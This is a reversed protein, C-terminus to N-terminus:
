VNAGTFSVVGSSVSFYSSNFSAVGKSTTSATPLYSASISNGNWTGSTITGVKNIYTSGTWTSLATNEVNSLGVHSKSLTLSKSEKGDYSLVNTGTSNNINLSKVETLYNYSEILDRVANENIGGSSGGIVTLEGKDNLKLTNSDLLLSQMFSPVSAPNINYMTIGGSVLLNGNLKWCETSDDYVIENGNIFLGGVFDKKGNITQQTTLTVFNQDVYEKDAKKQLDVDTAFTISKTFSISRGNDTLTANTIANGNGTVSISDISGIADSLTLVPSGSSYDWYLPDAVPLSTYWENPDVNGTNGYMTIGGRVVLNSDLYIVDDKWEYMRRNGISLGNIFNKVGEIDQVEETTTVFTKKLEEILVEINEPLKNPDDEDDEDGADGGPTSNDTAYMTVGGTVLLNGHLKFCSKEEDYEFLNDLWSIRPRTSKIIWKDSLAEDYLWFEPNDTM